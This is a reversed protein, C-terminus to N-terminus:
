EGLLHQQEVLEGIVVQGPLSLLEYARSAFALRLAAHYLTSTLIM